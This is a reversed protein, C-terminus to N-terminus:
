CEMSAPRAQEGSGDGLQVRKLSTPVFFCTHVTVPIHSHDGTFQGVGRASFRPGWSLDFATDRHMM